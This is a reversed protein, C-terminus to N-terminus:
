ARGEPPYLLSVVESPRGGQPSVVGPGLRLVGPHATALQDLERRQFGNRNCLDRVTAVGNPYHAKFARMLKELSGATLGHRHQQLMRLQENIFWVQVAIAANATKLDLMHNGSEVGYTAAHLVLGLRWANETWRAAFSAVDHFEGGPNRKHRLDNEFDRFAKTADSAANVVTPEGTTARFQKLLDTILGDYRSRTAQSITFPIEPIEQLTVEPASMNFRPLLGSQILAENESLSKWVDPQVMWMVSLCPRVLRISPRNLRDQRYPDGSFGSLYIDEDSSGNTYRGNLVSIVGRAESSLSALAERPQGSLLEALKERTVDQCFVRPEIKEHAIIGLRKEIETLKFVAEKEQEEDSGKLRGLREKKKTLFSEEAKLRPLTNNRWTDLIRTDEAILPRMASDFLQGKGGGSPSVILTFLNGRLWRNGLSNITLGAGLSASVASLVVPSVLATPLLTETGLETVFARLIPPLAEIPFPATSPREEPEPTPMAGIAGVVNVPEASNGPGIVPPPLVPPAQPQATIPTIASAPFQLISRSDNTPPTEADPNM